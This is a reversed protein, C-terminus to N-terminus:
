CSCVLDWSRGTSPSGPRITSTSPDTRAAVAALALGRGRGRAALRVVSAVLVGVLGDAVTTAPSAGLARLVQLEEDASRLQRSIAIAAIALAALAAIAGFVGLAISEPKVAREVKTETLSTVTFNADSGSPLLRILAKEVAPIDRSGHVLQM